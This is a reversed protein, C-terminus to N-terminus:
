EFFSKKSEGKIPLANNNIVPRSHSSVYALVGVLMDPIANLQRSCGPGMLKTVNERLNINPESGTRIESQVTTLLTPAGQLRALIGPDDSKRTRTNDAFLSM